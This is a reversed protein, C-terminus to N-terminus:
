ASPPPYRFNDRHNAALGRFTGCAHLWRLRPAPRRWARHRLWSRITRLAMGVYTISPRDLLGHAHLTRTRLYGLGYLLKELYRCTMRDQPILHHLIAAPIYAVRGGHRVLTFVLDKDENGGRGQGIWSRLLIEREHTRAHKLYAPLAEARIALGAGIPTFHPMPWGDALSWSLPESGLDRVALAWNFETLWAPPPVAYEPLIRPGAVALRPDTAFAAYLAGICDPDPVTDDDIFVLLSGAAAAMAALRAYFLGPRPEAIVRVSFPRPWSPAVVPSHSGNDVILLEWTTPDITQARLGAFVRNLPEARPNRTCIIVSILM